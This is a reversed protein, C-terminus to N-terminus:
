RRLQRNIATDYAFESVQNWPSADKQFTRQSEYIKKFTPNTVSIEAYLKMSADYAADIVAAAPTDTVDDVLDLARVRERVLPDIDFATLRVTPMLARVARTLSSGILGMGIVTVRAFPLM